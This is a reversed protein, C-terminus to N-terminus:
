NSCWNHRIYTFLGSYSQTMTSMKKLVTVTSMKQMSYSEPVTSMGGTPVTYDEAVCQQRENLVTTSVQGPVTSMGKTSYNAVCPQWENLGTTDLCLLCVRLVTIQRARYVYMGDTSYDAECPQTTSKGDTSYYGPMTSIGETGVTIRQPVAYM